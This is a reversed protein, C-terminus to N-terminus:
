TALLATGGGQKISMARVSSWGTDASQGQAASTPSTHEPADHDGPGGFVVRNQACALTLPLTPLFVAHHSTQSSPVGHGGPGQM